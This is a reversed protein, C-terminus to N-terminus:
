DASLRTKLIENSGGTMRLAAFSGALDRFSSRRQGVPNKVENLIVIRNQPGAGIAKM